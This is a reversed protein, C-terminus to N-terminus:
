VRAVAMQGLMHDLVAEHEHAPSFLVVDADDLVRVSHGPPWYFLEGSRCTTESGDVFTVTVAGTVMYGWHPADCSGHPLGELLPAIDTGAGLSFYEGAMEDFGAVSGFSTAQRAIAGPVDIKRPISEGAVNIARASLRWPAGVTRGSFAALVEIASADPPAVTADTFMGNQRLEDSLASRAFEGVERVLDDDVPYPQGTAVALDWGHVLGDFAVVRAFTEAPMQGIPTDLTREMAGDSRVGDLLDDMTQRFEVAPVRGYAPPAPEGSPEEGRFLHGFAGGLVMMHDLVDHVTFEDCPTPAALQEATIGDVLDSVAGLIRDLQDIPGM